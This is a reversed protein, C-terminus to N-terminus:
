KTFLFNVQAPGMVVTQAIGIVVDTPAPAPVTIVKGPEVASAIVFDGDVTTFGTEVNAYGLGSNCYVPSVLGAASTGKNVGLPPRGLISDAASYLFIQGLGNSAKATILDGDLLAEGALVVQSSTNTVFSAAQVNQSAVVSKQFTAPGQCDFGGGVVQAAGLRAFGQVYLAGASALSPKTPDANLGIVQTAGVVTDASLLSM